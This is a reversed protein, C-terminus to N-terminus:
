SVNEEGYLFQYKQNDDLIYFKLSKDREHLMIPKMRFESVRVLEEMSSLPHVMLGRVPDVPTRILM